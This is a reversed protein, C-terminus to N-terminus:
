SKNDYYRLWISQSKISIKHYVKWFFLIMTDKNFSKYLDGSLKYEELIYLIAFVQAVNQIWFFQKSMILSYLSYIGCCEIHM